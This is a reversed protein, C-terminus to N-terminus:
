KDGYFKHYAVLAEAFRQISRLDEQTKVGAACDNFVIFIAGILKKEWPNDERGVMYALRPISLLFEQPSRARHIIEYIKRMRTSNIKSRKQVFSKVKENFQKFQEIDLRDFNLVKKVYDPGLDERVERRWQEEQPVGSAGSRGPNTRAQPM